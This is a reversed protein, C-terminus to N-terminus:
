RLKPDIWVSELSQNLYHSASIKWGKLYTRHPVIRYWWLGPIYHAQDGILYKEYTRMKEFQKKQDPENLMDLYLETVKDDQHNTYENGAGKIWKSVDIAPNIVSPANNDMAVDHDRSQRLGAYWPGTQLMKQDANIGVKRWQDVYWTGMMTYPQDVARNWLTAKLNPYGAEKLLKKAKEHNAKVDKGYGPLTMLWENSGALEHGPFVVGGVRRVVAIQSMFKAGEWRNFAYAMAQRVRVDQFRKVKQNPGAGMVVNWDSEQVKIKNGLAEVLDDRAKPPFGRFEIAARDGRIAQLRVSMKPAQIAKYGDLYPKGKIFYDDNRKAEVFAGPQEQVFKFAGTGNIHTKHWAYGHTDLDKKSYVFNYPSAIAPIIARLPRKMKVVFKYQEPAEFAAIQTYWAKRSSPIDPPPFVIKDFTAKLDAATLPTGDHFKVDKRINFTYSMGDAATEFKGECLDCAFDNTSAPNDPNVRILLSYMPALPHIVGFTTEQHADYSPITSPVVFELMGGKVPTEAVGAASALGLAAIAGFTTLCYPRVRFARM